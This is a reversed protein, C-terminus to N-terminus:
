DLGKKTAGIQGEGRLESGVLDALNKWFVVSQWKHWGGVQCMPYNPYSKM